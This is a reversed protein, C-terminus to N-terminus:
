ERLYTFSLMTIDDYQAEGKAFQNVKDVMCAIIDQDSYDKHENLVELLRDTGFRSGDISKAEVIGDTYLFIRDGPNLDFSGGPFEMGPLFGVPSGHLGKEVKYGNASMIAPYDHGANCFDVHGTKLNIIGLWLTVFMGADNKESIREDAYKIIESPTGGMQAKTKIIIKSITMFLAAGVGKDSVDAILIALQEDNIMFFDYFDGGVEKAPITTAHIDFDNRNPFAPFINPLLNMQIKSAIGLESQTVAFKRERSAIVLGYNILISLLLAAPKLSIGFHFYTMIEALVPLVIMAGVSLKTRRSSESKIFIEICAPLLVVYPIPRYGYFAARAYVGAEDVTFFIPLFIDLLSLVTMVLYIVIYIDNCFKTLRSKFNLTRLNYAWFMLGATYYAAHLFANSLKNVLIMDPDAQVLWAVEDLFLCLACMFIPPLFIIIHSETSDISQICSLYIIACIWIGLIEVGTSYTWTNDMNGFGRIMQLTFGTVALFFVIFHGIHIMRKNKFMFISVILDFM